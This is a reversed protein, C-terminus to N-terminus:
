FGCWGKPWQWWRTTSRSKTTSGGNRFWAALFQGSRAWHPQMRAAGARLASSLAEALPRYAAPTATQVARGRLVPLGRRASDSAIAHTLRSKGIGPEGVVFLVGGKGMMAADLVEHLRAFECERGVLNASVATRATLPTGEREGM